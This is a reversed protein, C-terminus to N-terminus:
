PGIGLPLLLKLVEPVIEMVPPEPDGKVMPKGVPTKDEFERVIKLPEPAVLHGRVRLRTINGERFRDVITCLHRDVTLLTKDAVM